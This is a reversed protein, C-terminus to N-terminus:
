EKIEGLELVKLFEENSLERFGWYDTRSLGVEEILDKNTIRKNLARNYLMKVIYKYKKTRWFSQLEIDTFISRRKCYNYFKEYNDFNNINLIEVVTCISTAVSNFYAPKGDEATRYILICDGPNVSNLGPMRSLYIKEICNTPSLDKIIHDRETCLKSDPFMTTHYKPYISLLIKKNENLNIIPYDKKIDGIILSFDKVLVKENTTIKTGWSNFGYNELLLILEKYEDFITVYSKTVKEEFMKDFILKIFREGLITGHADIKFTGVKLRREGTFTPAIEGDEGEEVKLYLFAQIGDNDLIFAKEGEQSKRSFWDKFGDYNNKLSDFFPDMLNVEHFFVEQIDDM